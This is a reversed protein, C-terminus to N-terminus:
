RKDIDIDEHEKMSFFKMLVAKDMTAESISTVFDVRHCDHPCDADGKSSMGSKTRELIQKPLCAGRGGSLPGSLFASFSTLCPRALFLQM